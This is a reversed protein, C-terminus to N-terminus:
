QTSKYISDPPPHYTSNGMNRSADRDDSECKIIPRMRFERRAEQVEQFPMLRVCGEKHDALRCLLVWMKHLLDCLGTVRDAIVRPIMWRKWEDRPSLSSCLNASTGLSDSWVPLSQEARWIPMLARCRAQVGKPKAILNDGPVLVGIVPEFM